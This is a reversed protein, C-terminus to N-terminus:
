HSLSLRLVSSKGENASPPCLAELTIQESREKLSQNITIVKNDEVLSLYYFAGEGM